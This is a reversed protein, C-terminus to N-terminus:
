KKVVEKQNPSARTESVWWATVVAKVSKSTVDWRQSRVSLIWAIDKSSDMAGRRQVVARINRPHVGLLRAKERSSMSPVSSIAATFIAHKTVLEAKSRANKVESLSRVLGAIVEKQAKIEASLRFSEPLYASTIPDSWVTQLVAAQHQLDVTKGLTSSVVKLIANADCWVQRVNLTEGVFNCRVRWRSDDEVRLRQAQLEERKRHRYEQKRVRERETELTTRIREAPGSRKIGDQRLGERALGMLFCFGLGEESPILVVIIVIIRKQYLDRM